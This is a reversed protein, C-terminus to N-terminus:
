FKFIYEKLSITKRFAKFKIYNIFKTFRNIVM